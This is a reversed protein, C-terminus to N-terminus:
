RIPVIEFPLDTLLPRTPRGSYDLGILSFRHPGAAVDRTSAALAFSFVTQGPLKASIDPRPGVVEAQRVRVGDIVGEVGGISFRTPVYALWGRVQLDDGPATLIPVDSPKKLATEHSYVDNISGQLAGDPDHFEMPLPLAQVHALGSCYWLDWSPTMDRMVPAAYSLATACANDTTGDSPHPALFWGQAPHRALFRSLYVQQRDYPLAQFAVLPAEPLWPVPQFATGDSEHSLLYEPGQGEILMRSESDLHNRRVLAEIPRSLRPAYSAVDFTYGPMGPLLTGDHPALQYGCSALVLPLLGAVLFREAKKQLNERNAVLFVAGVGFTATAFLNEVNPDASRMVYYSTVGWVSGFAAALVPLARYKRETYCAVAASCILALIFLILVIPGVGNAPHLGAPTPRDQGGISYILGYEVFGKWDPLHGICLWYYGAIVGLVFPILALMKTLNWMVVRIRPGLPVDDGTQLFRLMAYAPLWTATSYLASEASWLCGLIWCGTGLWVYRRQALVSETLYIKAVLAVLAMSWFFRMPGAIAEIRPAGDPTILINALPLAFALSLSWLTLRSASLMWFLILGELLLLIATDIFLAQWTTAAPTLAIALVNLFGYQSPTDWLLWGGHRVLLASGTWFSQHYVVGDSVLLDNNRFAFAGYVIVAVIAVGVRWRPNTPLERGWAFAAALGLLVAAYILIRVSGAGAVNVIPLETTVCLWGLIGVLVVGLVDEVDLGRFYHSLLLIAYEGVLPYIFLTRGESMTEVWTWAAIFLGFGLRLESSMPTGQRPRLLWLSPPVALGIAAYEFWHLRGQILTDRTSMVLLFEVLFLLGFVLGFPWLLNEDALRERVLGNVRSLSM